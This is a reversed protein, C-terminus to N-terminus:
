HDVTENLFCFMRGASAEEMVQISALDPFYSLRRSAFMLDLVPVDQDRRTHSAILM